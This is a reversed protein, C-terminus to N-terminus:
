IKHKKVALDKQNSKQNSKGRGGGRGRFGRGRDGGSTGRLAGQNQHPPPARHTPAATIDAGGFSGTDDEEEEEDDGAQDNQEVIRRNPNKKLVTSSDHDADQVGYPQFDDMSDDPEDDYEFRALIASRHTAIHTKDDLVAQWDDESRKGTHARAAAEASIQARRFVDFEDGDYVNSRSSLIAALQVSAAEPEPKIAPERTGTPAATQPNLSVWHRLAEDPTAGKALGRVVTPLSAHRTDVGLEFLTNVLVEVNLKFPPQLLALAAWGAGVDALLERVHNAKDLALDWQAPKATGPESLACSSTSSSHLALLTPYEALLARLDLGAALVLPPWSHPAVAEQPVNSRLKVLIPVSHSLWNQLDPALVSVEESSSLAGVEAGYSAAFLAKALPSSLGNLSLKSIIMKALAEIAHKARHVARRPRGELEGHAAWALSPLVLDHLLASSLFLEAGIRPQDVLSDLLSAGATRLLTLLSWSLNFVYLINDAIEPLSDEASGQLGTALKLAREPILQGMPKAALLLAKLWDEKYLPEETFIITCVTALVHLLRQRDPASALLARSSYVSVYDMLKAFDLWGRRRLHPIHTALSVGSPPDSVLRAIFCFVLQSLEDHDQEEDAYRLYSNIMAM